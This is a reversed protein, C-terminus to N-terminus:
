EMELKCGRGGVKMNVRRAIDFFHRKYVRGDEHQNMISNTEFKSMDLKEGLFEVEKMYEDYNGIYHTPFNPYYILHPIKGRM